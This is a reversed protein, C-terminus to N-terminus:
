DVCEPEIFSWRVELAHQELSKIVEGTNGVM